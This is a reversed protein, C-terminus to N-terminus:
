TLLAKALGTPSAAYVIFLHKQQTLDGLNQHKLYINIYLNYIYVSLICKIYLYYIYNKFLFIVKLIM